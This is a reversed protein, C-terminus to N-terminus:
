SDQTAPMVVLVALTSTITAVLFFVFLIRDVTQALRRWDQIVDYEKEDKDHRELLKTLSMLADEYPASSRSKPHRKRAARPRSSSTVGDGSGGGVGGTNEVGVGSRGGTHGSKSGRGGGGGGGGVSGGSGGGSGILPTLLRDKRGVSNGFTPTSNPTDACSDVGTTTVTTTATKFQGPSSTASDVCQETTATSRPSQSAVTSPLTDVEPVGGNDLRLEDRLDQALNELTLKLSVDRVVCNTDVGPVGTYHLRGMRDSNRFCSPRRRGSRAGLFLRRLWDPVSQKQPGRHHLNLVFVTMIVSVSTLSMVITLYISILPVFESTEPLNEAVALMFVSFALLVTIGLAIKEGSDPPLCFVLLTLASMMVCPFVVNYMYYLTRRRIKIYFTVDPFPEPCCSYRVVNRIFRVRILEWEGNVIYNSLDVESTRNTIDVQYGDYTWSGFKLSCEQSDFPFYTVDVKCSSQLKTPVPWFVKGNPEVMANAPMLGDTYEAANNYLVMDPLWLKHCPIRLKTINNFRQPDWVMFEDVWEHDLWVNTILVQNKEDMDLVQTLTLGMQIVVPSSSNKVPRVSREYGRMIYDLLRQEDPIPGLQGHLNQPIHQEYHDTDRRGARNKGCSATAQMVIYVLFMMFDVTLKM